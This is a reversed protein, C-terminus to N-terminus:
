AGPAVYLLIAVYHLVSAALVFLHWVAHLYPAKNDHTLFVTGVTYIVGGVVMMWIGAAPIMELAPKVAIVPLWGLLV